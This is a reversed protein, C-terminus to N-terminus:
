FNGRKFSKELQWVKDASVIGSISDPKSLNCAAVASAFQLLKIEDYGKYIGFLIGACFCDGAGVTGKIYGKPLELSPVEFYSGDKKMLVSAEPFHICVIERVGKEFLKFCIAKLNERIIKGQSDRANIDVINGSEIENVVLYDCYKLAPTIVKAFRDSQESVADFSTKFGNKGADFLVKALNTGYYQNEGDLEDLLLAYGIHFIDGTITNFDIDNQGFKANAGRSHFFTRNGKKSTMVDTFSTNEQSDTKVNSIDLGYESMTQLLFNGDSDNGVKGAAYVPLSEDLKKLCIGVNPVCGGVGLSVSEINCLMNEKPYTDIIKIKDAIINGAVTIGNKM